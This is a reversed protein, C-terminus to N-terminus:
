YSGRPVESIMGINELEDMSLPMDYQYGGGTSGTTDEFMPAIEGYALGDGDGYKAHLHDYYDDIKQHM